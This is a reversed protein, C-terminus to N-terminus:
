AVLSWSPQPPPDKEIDQTCWSGTLRKRAKSKRAQFISILIELRGPGNPAPTSVPSFCTGAGRHVMVVDRCRHEQGYLRRKGRHINQASEVTALVPTPLPSVISPTEKHFARFALVPSLSVTELSLPCVLMSHQPQFRPLTKM